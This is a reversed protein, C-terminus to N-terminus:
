PAVSSRSRMRADVSGDRPREARALLRMRLYRFPGTSWAIRERWRPLVSRRALAPMVRWARPRGRLAGLVYALARPRHEPHEALLLCVYAAAGAAAAALRSRLEALSAPAPHVARARPTYVMRHGREVLQFWAYLEEACDQLAGRGLREDFGSWVDFASRRIAILAGSGLGGFNVLEFWGPTDRDVVRRGPGADFGGFAEFAARAAADGGSLLVRGTVTVVRPDAFEAILAAVCGAELETDDDVFVVIEGSAARAGRNRARSLGPRNVHLYHAGFRRAVEAAPDREPASDVVVLQLDGAAQAQVAALCRALSATRDRTPVVVTCVPAARATTPGVSTAILTRRLQRAV